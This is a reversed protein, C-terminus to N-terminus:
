EVPESARALAAFYQLCDPGHGAHECLVASRIRSHVANWAAAKRPCRRFDCDLHTLMALHAQAVTGVMMADLGCAYLLMLTAAM